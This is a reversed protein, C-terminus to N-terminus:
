LGRQYFDVFDNSTVSIGAAILGRSFTLPVTVAM